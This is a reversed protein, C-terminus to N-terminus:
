APMSQRSINHAFCPNKQNSITSIRFPAARCRWAAILRHPVKHPRPIVPEKVMSLVAAKESIQEFFVGYDNRQQQLNEKLAQVGAMANQALIGKTQMSISLQESVSFINVAFHLGFFTTFKTMKTALGESKDCSERTSATKSISMCYRIMCPKM